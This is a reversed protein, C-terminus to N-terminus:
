GSHFFTSDNINVLGNLRNLISYLLSLVYYTHFNITNYDSYIAIVDLSLRTMSNNSNLTFIEFDIIFIHGPHDISSLHNRDRWFAFDDIDNRFLKNHISEIINTIWPLDSSCVDSSWDRKSRTHRRRSSFFFYFIFVLNDISSFLNI